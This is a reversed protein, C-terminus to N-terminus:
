NHAAHKVPKAPYALQARTSRRLKRTGRAATRLLNSKCHIERFNCHYNKTLREWINIPRDHLGVDYDDSTPGSAHGAGEAQRLEDVLVVGLMGVRLKALLVNVQQLLRAFNARM